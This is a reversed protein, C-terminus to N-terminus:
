TSSSWIPNGPPRRSSRRLGDRAILVEHGELRLVRQLLEVIDRNDDVILIRM